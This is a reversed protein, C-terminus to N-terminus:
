KSPASAGVRPAKPWEYGNWWMWGQVLSMTIAVAAFGVM